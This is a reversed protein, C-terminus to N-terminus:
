EREYRDGWEMDKGIMVRKGERLTKWNVMRGCTYIPQNFDVLDIEVAGVNCIM